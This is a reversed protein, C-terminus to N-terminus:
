LGDSQAPTGQTKNATSFGDQVWKLSAAGYSIRALQRVAHFAVQPDNACAQICIAGGCQGAVLEDGNFHPLDVLAAPRKSAIGYRDQGNLAFFDPGFGFTLTLRQPNLGVAEGSDLPPADADQVGPEAPLGATMRAAANTWAQLLAVVDSRKAATLDFSAFYLSEQMPTTIGGQHVGYFPEAESQNPEPLSPAVQARATVMGAAGAAGALGGAAALFNRRSPKPVTDDQNMRAEVLTNWTTRSMIFVKAM